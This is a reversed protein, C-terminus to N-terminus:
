LCKGIYKNYLITTLVTDIVIQVLMIYLIYIYNTPIVDDSISSDNYESESYNTLIYIHINRLLIVLHTYLINSLSIIHFLIIGM